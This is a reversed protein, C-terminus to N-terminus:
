GMTEIITNINNRESLYQQYDADFAIRKSITQDYEGTLGMLLESIERVAHNGGENGTIYQCISHEALYDTFLPSSNRRVCIALKCLGAASIDIIDDFVFAIEKLPVNYNEVINELATKKNKCRTVVGTFHERKAFEIATINNEGTIIFFLPISKSIRWQNFRLMNCGMSDAESFMSGRESDKYGNNFVGDWDFIFIKIDSLYAAIESDSVLFHGGTQTFKDKIGTM